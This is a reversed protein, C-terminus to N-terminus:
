LKRVGVLVIARQQREEGPRDLTKAQLLVVDHNRDTVGHCLADPDGRADRM